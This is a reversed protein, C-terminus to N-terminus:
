RELNVFINQITSTTKICHVQKFLSIIIFRTYVKVNHEVKGSDQNVIAAGPVELRSKAFEVNRVSIHYATLFKIKKWAHACMSVIIPMFLHIEMM